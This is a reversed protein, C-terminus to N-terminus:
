AAQREAANRRADYQRIGWALAYCCWVFRQTYDTFDHDWLDRFVFERGGIRATFDYAAQMAANGSSDDGLCHLVDFEVAERLERRGKRGLDRVDRWWSVIQERVVRRFKEESFEKASGGTRGGDVAELKESWYSLNIRLRGDPRAESRFFQFMDALREFVFTGMDGAYCLRGPWTVLEFSMNVTGPTAFRVHRYVGDDRLVQMRHQAVDKLFTQETADRSM